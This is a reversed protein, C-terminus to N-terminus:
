VNSVSFVNVLKIINDCLDKWLSYTCVNTDLVDPNLVYNLTQTM